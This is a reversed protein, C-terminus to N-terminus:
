GSADLRYKIRIKNVNMNIVTRGGVGVLLEFLQDVSSDLNSERCSCSIQRKELAYLDAKSGMTDGIRVPAEKGPPLDGL